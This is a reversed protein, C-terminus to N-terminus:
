FIEVIINCKILYMIINKKFINIVYYIAKKIALKYFLSFLM